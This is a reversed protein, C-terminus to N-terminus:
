SAIEVADRKRVYDFHERTEWECNLRKLVLTCTAPKGQDGESRYHIVGVMVIASVSFMM